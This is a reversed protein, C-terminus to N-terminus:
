LARRETVGYQRLVFRFWENYHHNDLLWDFSLGKIEHEKKELQPCFYSFGNFPTMKRRYLKILKEPNSGSFVYFFIQAPLNDDMECYIKYKQPM